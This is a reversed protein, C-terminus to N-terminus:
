EGTLDYVKGSGSPTKSFGIDAAYSALFPNTSIAQRLANTYLVQQQVPNAMKYNEDKSLTDMVKAQLKGYEARVKSENGQADKLLQNRAHGPGAAIRAANERSANEAQSLGIKIQNDVIKMATERDVKDREMVFKIMTEQGALATQRIKNEAKMIARASMEDRNLQLEDLRDRADSLKDKAANIKDLGAIYQKSGTDIGAGLAQGINGRTSM